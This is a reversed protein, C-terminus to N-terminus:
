AAAPYHELAQELHGLRLDILAGEDRQRREALAQRAIQEAGQVIALQRAEEAQLFAPGPRAHTISLHDIQVGYARVDADIAARLIEAQDTGLDLITSWTQTRVLSRAAQACAGQLVIDFDPVAISYVFRAPDAISFTALADITAAVNDLTPTEVRPLAFPVQRRTVVHSVVIWPPVAHPGPPLVDLHKGSRVLMANTGEPVRVFFASTLGLAAFVLAAVFGAVTLLFSWNFLLTVIGFLVLVAAIGLFDFRIRLNRLPVLVVPTRGNADRSEVVAGADELPVRVQALQTPAIGADPAGPDSDAM